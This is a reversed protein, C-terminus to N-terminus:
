AEAHNGSPPLLALAQQPQVIRLGDHRSRRDVRLLAKDKTVLMNARASSALDLFKQDQPDTCHWPASFIREVPESLTRWQTLLTEPSIAAAQMRDAFLTRSLVEALETDTSDSRVCRLRPQPEILAQWLWASRPDNFVWCDLLVNTDIVVRALSM